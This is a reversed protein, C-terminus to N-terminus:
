DKGGDPGKKVPIVHRDDFQTMGRAVYTRLAFACWAVSDLHHQGDQPDFEEGRWWKWAHSMMARFVRGFTIGMEWNRDAYKKAGRGYLEALAALAEPPILDYRDLKQSDDKVGEALVDTKHIV